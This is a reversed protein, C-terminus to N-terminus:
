QFRQALVVPIDRAGHVISIIEPYTRGLRYFIRYPPAARSRVEVGLIRTLSSYRAGLEPNAAIGRLGHQLALATRKALRPSVGALFRRIEDLDRKADESLTFRTM